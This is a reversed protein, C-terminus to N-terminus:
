EMKKVIIRFTVRGARGREGWMQDRTPSEKGRELVDWGGGGVWSEKGWFVSKKNEKETTADELDIGGQDERGRKSNPEKNKWIQFLVGVEPGDRVLVARCKLREGRRQGRKL